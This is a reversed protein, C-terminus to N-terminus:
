PLHSPSFLLQSLPRRRSLIPFALFYSLPPLFYLSIRRFHGLYFSKPASLPPLSDLCLLAFLSLTWAAFQVNLLLLPFGGEGDGLPYFLTPSTRQRSLFSLSSNSFSPRVFVKEKTVKSFGRPSKERRVFGGSGNM